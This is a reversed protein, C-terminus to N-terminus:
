QIKFQVRVTMRQTTQRDDLPRAEFKYQRIASLAAREFQSAYPGPPNSAVATAEEVDGAATIRFSVDVWGEVGARKADDPFRPAATKIVKPAAAVPIQMPAPPPNRAVRLREDAAALEGGGFGLRRAENLLQAATNVQRQAIAADANDILKLGMARTAQQTETSDADIQQLQALYHRASDREPEFLRNDRTRNLVLRLLNARSGSAISADAEAILRDVTDRDVGFRLAENALQKASTLQQRSLATRSLAVLRVGIERYGDRAAVNGPDAREVLGFYYEASDSQPTTLRDQLLRQRAATLWRAVSQQRQRENNIPPAAAEVQSERVASRVPPAANQSSSPRRTAVQRRQKELQSELFPLRNNDPQIERANAIALTALDIREDILAQEAQELIRQLTRELGTQAAGNNPALRLAESYYHTASDTTPSSYRGAAYAEDARELALAVDAPLPALEAQRQEADRSSDWAQWGFWGAAGIIAAAGVAIKPAHRRLPSEDDTQSGFDNMYGPMYNPKPTAGYRSRLSQRAEPAQKLEPVPNKAEKAELYQRKASDVALRVLPPSIPTPLFSHLAGTGLLRRLASGVYEPGAAIIVVNSHLARLAISIRQFEVQTGARDTILIPCQGLETMEAIRDFQTCLQVEHRDQLAVAISRYFEANDTYVVVRVDHESIPAGDRDPRRAKRLPPEPSTELIVHEFDAPDHPLREIPDGAANVANETSESTAEEAAVADVLLVDRLKDATCPRQMVRFPTVAADDTKVALAEAANALLIRQTHPAHRRAERLVNLGTSSYLTQGVVIADINGARLLALAEAGSITIHFDFEGRLEIAIDRLSDIDRDVLVVQRLAPRTSTADQAAGHRSNPRGNSTERVPSSVGNQAPVAAEVQQLRHAVLRLPTEDRRTTPERRTTM